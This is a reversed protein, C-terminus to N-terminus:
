PRYSEVVTSGLSSHSYGPERSGGVTYAAGRFLVARAYNRATPMPPGESWARTDLDFRLVSALCKTDAQSEGGFVWITGAAVVAGATGRPQIPPGQTWADAAPDWVEVDGFDSFGSRGGIAWIRGDVVVAAPSGKSRLLPARATWADAKPDYELHSALTSDSNGGGLVHIKGGLAVAAHGGRPAPLPAVRGWRKARPDYTLVDAVPVNTVTSFGGILYIRGDLFVAAPANLGDGPLETEVTWRKGDFREVELVPLAGTGTGALAFIGGDSAVVAHAARAHLMSPETRWAGTSRAGAAGPTSMPTAGGCSCLIALLAAPAFRRLMM